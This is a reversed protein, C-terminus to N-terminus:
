PHLDRDRDGPPDTSILYETVWSCLEDKEADMEEELAKIKHYLREFPRDHAEQQLHKGAKTLKYIKNTGSESTLHNVEILGARQAEKLRVSVTNRSIPAIDVVEEFGLEGYRPFECLLEVGGKGQIFDVVAQRRKEVEEELNPVNDSGDAM